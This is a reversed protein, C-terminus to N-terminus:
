RSEGEKDKWLYISTKERSGHSLVVRLMRRHVEDGLKPTVYGGIFADTVKYDAHNGATEDSSSGCKHPLTTGSVGDFRMQLLQERLDEYIHSHGGVVNLELCELEGFAVPLASPSAQSNVDGYRVSDPMYPENPDRNVYNPNRAALYRLVCVAEVLAQFSLLVYDRKFVYWKSDEM